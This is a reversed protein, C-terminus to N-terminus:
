CIGWFCFAAISYNFLLNVLFGIVLSLVYKKTKLAAIVGFTLMITKCILVIVSFFGNGVITIVRAISDGSAMHGLEHAMIGKLEDPSLGDIAGRNVVITKRGIAMANINKSETLYLKIHKSMSPTKKRAEEYVEEFLPMLYDKDRKTEVKRARELGRM